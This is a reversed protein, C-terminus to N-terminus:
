AAQVALWQNADLSYFWVGPVGRDDYVYTRVNLEQFHSLGPLTPLFRPHVDQMFFAVIGIYAKGAFTDVRLGEPLTNQIAEVNYEWHLFLLSRWNQYILPSRYTPRDRVVLRDSLTPPKM